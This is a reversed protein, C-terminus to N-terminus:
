PYVFQRIRVSPGDDLGVRGGHPGYHTPQVDFTIEVPQGQDAVAFVYTIEEM